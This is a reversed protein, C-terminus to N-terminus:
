TLSGFLIVFHLEIPKSEITHRSETDTTDNEQIAFACDSLFPACYGLPRLRQKPFFIFWICFIGSDGGWAHAIKLTACHSVGTLLVIFLRGM